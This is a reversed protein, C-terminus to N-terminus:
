RAPVVTLVTRVGWNEAIAGRVREVGEEDGWLHLLALLREFSHTRHHHDRVNLEYCHVAENIQGEKEHREGERHRYDMKHMVEAAAVRCAEGTEGEHQNAGLMMADEIHQLPIGRAEEGKAWKRIRELESTETPPPREPPVNMTVM